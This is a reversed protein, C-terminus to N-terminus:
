QKRVKPIFERAFQKFSAKITGLADPDGHLLASMYAQAQERKIHPPIPPINPDTKVELVVPRDANLARDWAGALAESETVKIGKLGILEAYDAYPFDPIDQSAEYKPDGEMVRMEWTVQNLDQNNLVMIILRPDSWRQWYKAITVLESNGNMQMAGDGVMAIAVREPYAFKAAIAYPVGNGMTALGGSLSAMMGRRLKLDRAYWNAASGSDSTLICNDPLKPSLEWFVRQPNVPDADAMAREELVEWWQAVSKEIHERWSRDTKQKLHPLLAQLTAASDGVLNVEMPYRMSVQRGDIDIQVGRAQGEEPLFESYPFGSGIMLLTDCNSMMEWSPNTGLLGISGTVFPLDDPLAARGLLAKAVGAGLKEAVQIVEDTANLAGAGVLIAVREGENLTQAARRLDEEHPVTRPRSYGVGSHVTGHAHPPKEVAPQSQLDNPIIIATVTRESLAIRIARDVLHRIQGPSTAMHVYEHAVDKFLSVLDVEQQYEGGMAARAQQGVIAVVPQHDKKADYLGNLLHIAGPGSTATCIGVEGTFKAHACAMFAAMEEHRTQIFEFQDDARNLAGMIGNSGDGPYGYIRKINWESLRKLLFDGVLESM